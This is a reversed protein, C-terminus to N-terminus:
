KEKGKDKGGFWAADWWERGGDGNLREENKKVV